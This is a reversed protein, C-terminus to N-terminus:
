NTWLNSGCNNFIIFIYSPYLNAGSHPWFFAFITHARGALRWKEPKALAMLRSIESKKPIQRGNSLTATQATNVATSKLRHFIWTYFGERTRGSTLKNLVRRLKRPSRLVCHIFRHTTIQCPPNSPQSLLAAPKLGTQQSSRKCATKLQHFHRIFPPLRSDRTAWLRSHLLRLHSSCHSSPTRM